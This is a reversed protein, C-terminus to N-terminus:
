FGESMLLLMAASAWAALDGGRSTLWSLIKSLPPHQAKCKGKGAFSALSSAALGLMAADFKSSM